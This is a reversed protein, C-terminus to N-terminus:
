RRKVKSRRSLARLAALDYKRAENLAPWLRRALSRKLDHYGSLLDPALEALTPPGGGGVVRGVLATAGVDVITYRAGGCTTWGRAIQTNTIPVLQDHCPGDDFLIYRGAVSM